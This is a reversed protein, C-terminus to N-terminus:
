KAGVARRRAPLRSLGSAVAGRVWAAALSPLSTRTLGLRYRKSVGEFTVADM